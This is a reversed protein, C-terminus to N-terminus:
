DDKFGLVIVNPRLVGLGSLQIFMYLGERVSNASVWDFFGQVHQDIEKKLSIKRIMSGAKKLMKQGVSISKQTGEKWNDHLYGKDHPNRHIDPASGMFSSSNMLISQSRIKVQAYIVMTGASQRLVTGFYVLHPREKPDGCM